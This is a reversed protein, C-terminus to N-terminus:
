AYFNEKEKYPLTIRVIAFNEENFLTLGYSTGFTLKLRQDINMLGIGFGNPKIRHDYLKNLLNDELTSGSNKVDIYIQNADHSLAVSIHCEETSEELAYHIANEVLPQITLKPIEVNMISEDTKLAFILQEDFRLQQITIYSNLFELEQRISFTKNKQSLSARMLTGLSEVMLSIEHENSAKARWNISELTNYLFHPNIQTELAKIQADKVLLENRYNVNILEDIRAAMADFQQHIIGLEDKRQNYDYFVEPAPAAHAKDQFSHFKKILNDFHVTLNGIFYKSFLIACGLSLFVSALFLFRAIEISSYIDSYSVLIYFYWQFDPIQNKVVFFKGNDLKMTSYPSSFNKSLELLDKRSLQSNTEIIGKDDCLLFSPNSYQSSYYSSSSILAKADVNIILTGLTDFQANEIRRIERTLFLGYKRSYSSCWQAKGYKNQSLIVLEDLLNQPPIDSDKIYTNATFSDNVLMIYSIHNDRFQQYYSELRNYVESHTEYRASNSKVSVLLNQLAKDTSISASVSEINTLKYYLKASSSSLSDATTQYILRNSTRTLLFYGCLLVSLILINSLLVIAFIKKSLPYNTLKQTFNKLM